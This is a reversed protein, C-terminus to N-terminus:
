LKGTFVTYVVYIFYVILMLIGSTRGLTRNKLLLIFFVIPIAVMLVLNETALSTSVIPKIVATFGIVCLLNFLCSGIANGAALETEGKLCAVVTTALEPLSTGFAVLTLAIVAKSVGMRTALFEGGVVLRDSGVALVLLGVLVLLINSTLSNPKEGDGLEAVEAEIAAIPDDPNRKAILICSLTYAVIGVAFILGEIRSITNDIRLMAIFVLSVIILLPLERKVVQQHVVIPTMVAALALVLALNCINSGVVNGLAFDGSGKLNAQISVILEPMSTGFAVVTLGVVLTSIGAAMATGAAGRVLWEAGYYLGALGLIVWGINLAIDM